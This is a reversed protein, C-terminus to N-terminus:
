IFETFLYDKYEPIIENSANRRTEDIFNLNEPVPHADHCLIAFLIFVFLILLVYM